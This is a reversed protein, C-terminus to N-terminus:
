YTFCIFLWYQLVFVVLIRILVQTWILKHQKIVWCNMLFEMNKQRHHSVWLWLSPQVTLKRCHMLVDYWYRDSSDLVIVVIDSIILSIKWIRHTPNKLVGLGGVLFHRKYTHEQLFIFTHLHKMRSSFHITYLLM